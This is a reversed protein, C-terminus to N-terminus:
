YYGLLRFLWVIAQAISLGIALNIKKNYVLLSIVFLNIISASILITNLIM